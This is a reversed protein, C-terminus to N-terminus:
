PRHLIRCLIFRCLCFSMTADPHCPAPDQTRGLSFLRSAVIILEGPALPGILRDLGYIGTYVGQGTGTERLEELVGPLIDRIHVAGVAKDDRVADLNSELADLTGTLPERGYLCELADKCAAIVARRQSQAKVAKIHQAVFAASTVGQSLERIYERGGISDAGQNFEIHGLLTIENWESGSADLSQMAEFLIRHSERFFDDARLSEGAESVADSDLIMAGLVAKEADLNDPPAVVDNM